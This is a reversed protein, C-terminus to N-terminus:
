LPHDTRVTYDNLLPIRVRKRIRDLSKQDGAIVEGPRKTSWLKWIILGYTVSMVVVPFFFLM